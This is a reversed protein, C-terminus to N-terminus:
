KGFEALEKLLIKNEYIAKGVVAANCKLKDLEILDNMNSIGGSAIIFIDPFIDKLNKYLLFSPGELMGDKEIDTILFQRLGYEYCQTIYDNIELASNESWGKIVIEGELTDAAIIIKEQSVKQMVKEFEPRNVFPLSGIVIQDVGIALLKSADDVSRIGGGFEIKLKTKHKIEEIIKLTSIKGEKSGSLDVIHIQEFGFDSYVKAQDLPNESYVKASAFDGKKLRVVEGNLIDIAPIILM